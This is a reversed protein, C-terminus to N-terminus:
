LQPDRGRGRGLHTRGKYIRYEKKVAATIWNAKLQWGGPMGVSACVVRICPHHGDPGTAM